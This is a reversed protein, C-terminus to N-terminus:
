LEDLWAVIQGAVAAPPRHSTDVQTHISQRLVQADALAEGIMADTWGPRTALRRRRTADDCDLLLWALELCTLSPDSPALDSPALPAFLLPTKGNQCVRQLLALWLANYAPWTTPDTYIDKAALASAPAALWDMDFVLYDVGLQLLAAVATSKGAGPAGTIIYIKHKDM